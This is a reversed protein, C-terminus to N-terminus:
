SAALADAGARAGRIVICKTPCKEVCKGCADCKAPDIVALNNEVTIAGAPCVKACLGCGICGVKCTKRVEAGREHSRCLVTVSQSAPVLQIIGRPCASVCRGCSTCEGEDVVPLGDPGMHLADFTCAAACSGLGLCGYTCAKAGGGVIQAARCDSLGDYMFRSGCNDPSGQCFVRAVTRERAVGADVGMIAAVKAAVSQGGVPCGDVPAKGAVIAAALGSCGPFGCGGCNAGPLIEAIRDQRPDQEVAFKRAAFALALGFVAGMLGLSLVAKVYIM